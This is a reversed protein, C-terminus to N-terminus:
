SAAGPGVTGARVPKKKLQSRVLYLNAEFSKNAPELHLAKLFEEEAEELYNRKQYIVGLNNHVWANTPKFKVCIKLEDLAEKLREQKIYLNAMNYHASLSYFNLEIAKKYEKEAEGYEGERTLLVGLNIHAEIYDPRVGVLYRYQDIAEKDRGMTQLILAGQYHAEWYQPKLHLAQNIEVLAPKYQGQKQLARAKLLHPEPDNDGPEGAPAIMDALQKEKRKRDLEDQYESEELETGEDNYYKKPEMKPHSVDAELKELSDNEPAEARKRKTRGVDLDGSSEDDGAVTAEEDAAKAPKAAKVPKAAAPKKAPAPEAEPEDPNIMPIEIEGTRERPAVKIEPKLEAAPEEDDANQTPVDQEKAPAAPAADKAQGQAQGSDQGSDQGQAGSKDAGGGFPHLAKNKVKNLGGLGFSYAEAGSLLTPAPSCYVGAISLSLAVGIIKPSKLNAM